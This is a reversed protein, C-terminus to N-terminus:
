DQERNRDREALSAQAAYIAALRMAPIGVLFLGHLKIWGYVILVPHRGEFRRSSTVLPPEAICCTRGMRELRRVFDFDEMVAIPRMGGMRDYEARRVFIGSDGYYFGLRRIFAYFGTLWRSFSTDGDFLLRFNGGIVEPHSALMEDIRGLGGAPFATDAHLFFLVDGVAERVGACIQAGRGTPSQLVRARYLGAIRVTGDRSGGDVVIVEHAALERQLAELLPPLTREENLTPIIVSIM